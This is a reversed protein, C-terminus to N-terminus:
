GVAFARERAQRAARHSDTVLTVAALLVISLISLAVVAEVLSYGLRRRQRDRTM